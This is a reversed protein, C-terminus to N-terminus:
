NLSSSLSSFFQAMMKFNNENFVGPGHEGGPVLIFKGPVGARQLANFLKESECYPVYPDADGHLILFPPDNSDVYTTPDALACMDPNDQIKSGILSSEPSDAGDHSFSGACSDMILFDTPGFWDVVADVTSSFSTYQGISGELDASASGTSINKISGSTGALGSLHGGSSYGTIGIFSTDVQYIGANARIFRIAAKIDQIQAPFKADSSSRHNPTIVAFGADLLASGLVPLANEKSNNSLWASGYIVIVAPYVPNEVKPLYIDLNHYAISDGAYNVDKWNKSYQQGMCSIYLLCSILLTFIKM